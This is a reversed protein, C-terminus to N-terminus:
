ERRAPIELALHQERPTVAGGGGEGGPRRAGLRSDGAAGSGDAAAVRRMLIFFEVLKAARSQRASQRRQLHRSRHVSLELLVRVIKLAHDEGTGIENPNEVQV